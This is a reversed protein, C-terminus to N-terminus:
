QFMGVKLSDKMMERITLAIGAADFGCEAQLQKLTGHEVLRDPIGLIKVEAKYNHLAMFELIASRFGGTVTGDEVTVVKTFKSFIEHLMEEDLPKVFRMDYHAPNLGETRLERLASSVFNGPHGISLVAIGSGDKLKRGKGIQIEEFPTKWEPMVGEGRPYRIVFPSITSELQATYMLNRLESENMPASIVM